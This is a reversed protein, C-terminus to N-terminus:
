GTLNAILLDLLERVNVQGACVVIWDNNDAGTGCGDLHSRLQQLKLIAGAIDGAAAKGEAADLMSEIAQRTGAGPPRFASLPLSQLANLVFEVDSGDPLGDDDTDKDIPDTGSALEIPDTLGDDDSDPKLPDTGYTLVEAGDSLTDGDTDWKTPDTHYVHVEDGDTLHDDDSDADFPDTHWSAEASNSLGDGDADEDGDIVGDDDSDRDLPDTKFLNLEDGDNVGDSDTDANLPNTGLIFSEDGDTLGDSDFDAAPNCLAVDYHKLTLDDSPSPDAPSPVDDNDNRMVHLQGGIGPSAPDINRNWWDAGEPEDRFGSAPNYFFSFGGGGEVNQSEAILEGAANFLHIGGREYEPSEGEVGNVIYLEGWPTFAGGQTDKLPPEVGTLVFDDESKFAGQVNGAEIAAYDIQYRLVRENEASSIQWGSTYLLGDVPNIALWGLRPPPLEAIGKYSLDSAGYVAIGSINPAYSDDRNMPIFLYGNSQDLDGQHHWGADSLSDPLDGRALVGAPWDSPDDDPDIDTNLNLGVPIKVLQEENTFFWNGADHAIGNNADTWGMSGQDPNDNLFTTSCTTPLDVTKARGPPSVVALLIAFLAALLLHITRMSRHRM